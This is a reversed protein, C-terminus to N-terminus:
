NLKQIEEENHFDSDKLIEDCVNAVLTPVAKNIPLKVSFFYIDM